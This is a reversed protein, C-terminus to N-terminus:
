NLSQSIKNQLAIAETNNPNITIAKKLAIISERYHNLKYLALGKLYWFFDNNPYYEIATEYWELAAPYEKLCYYLVGGADYWYFPYDPKIKVAREYASVAASYQELAQLAKGKYFLAPHYNSIIKLTEECFVLAKQYEKM